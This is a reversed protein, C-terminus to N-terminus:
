NRQMQKEEVTSNGKHKDMKQKKRVYKQVTLLKKNEKIIKGMISINRKTKHGM